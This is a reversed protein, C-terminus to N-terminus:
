CWCRRATRGSGPPYRETRKGDVPTFGQLQGSDSAYGSASPPTLGGRYGRLIELEGLKRSRILVEAGADGFLVDMVDLERLQGVLPSRVLQTLLDDGDPTNPLTLSMLRFLADHTPDAPSHGTRAHSM